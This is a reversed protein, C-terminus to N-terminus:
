VAGAFEVMKEGKRLTVYAKKWDPRHGSYRGQRRMKGHFNATRVSAVKVKFIKEVANKIEQKTARRAVKFTLTHLNDKVFTSKETVVPTKLVDYRLSM